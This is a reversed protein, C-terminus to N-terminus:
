LVAFLTLPVLVLFFTGYRLAIDRWSDTSFFHLSLPLVLPAFPIPLLRLLPKTPYIVGIFAVTGVLFAAVPVLAAMGSGRGLRWGHALVCGAIALAVGAALEGYKLDASIAIAAALFACTVSIAVVLQRTVENSTVPLSSAFEFVLALLSLYVALLIGVTMRGPVLTSWTPVVMWSAVIAATLWCVFSSRTKGSFLVPIWKGILAVFGVPWLWHWFKTPLAFEDQLLFVSVTTAVATALAYRLDNSRILTKTQTARDDPLNRFEVLKTLLWALVTATAFSPLISKTPDILM